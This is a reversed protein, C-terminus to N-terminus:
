WLQAYRCAVFDCFLCPLVKFIVWYTDRLKCFILAWFPVLKGLSVTNLWTAGKINPHLVLGECPGWSGVLGLGRPLRGLGGSGLLGDRLCKYKEERVRILTIVKSNPYPLLTKRRVLLYAVKRLAPIFGHRNAWMQTVLNNIRVRCRLYIHMCTLVM